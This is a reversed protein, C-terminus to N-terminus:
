HQRKKTGRPKAVTKGKTRKSSAVPGEIIEIDDDIPISKRKAGSHTTSTSFDLSDVDIVEGATSGSFRTLAPSQRISSRVSPPRAVSGRSRISSAPSPRRSNSRRDTGGQATNPFTPLPGVEDEQETRDPRLMHSLARTEMWDRQFVTHSALDDQFTRVMCETRSDTQGSPIVREGTVRAAFLELSISASNKVVIREDGDKDESKPEVPSAEGLYETWEWPRNQVPTMTTQGTADQSVYALNAVALNPPVFPLLTRIQRRYELPMDSPLTQMDIEPYHQFPNYVTAKPDVPVEDLVFCLTDVILPFIIENILNGSGFVFALRLLTRYLDESQEKVLATWSGPLILVFQLLRALFVTNQAIHITSIGDLPGASLTELASKLKDLVEPVLGDQMNSPTPTNEMPPLSQVSDRMSKVISTLLRLVEGAVPVLPAGDNVDSCRPDKLLTTIRRLGASLLKSAIPLSIDKMMEAVFDSQESTMDQLFVRATIQDLLENARKRTAERNLASSLQKMSFRNEMFTAALKWPSLAASSMLTYDMASEDSNGDNLVLHLAHILAEHVETPVSEDELVSEFALNVTELDRYVGQRFVNTNCVARRFGVYAQRVVTPVNVNEELLVLIPVHEVLSAFHPERYVDRRRTHLGRAEFFTSPPYEYACGTNLLLRTCLDCIAILPTELSSGHTPSDARAGARWSPYALGQLIAVTSLAGQVVLHLLVVTVVDWTEATFTSVEAAGSGLFWGLLHSDLGSPLHHEVHTLFAGYRLACIRRHEVDPYLVPIHRLSAITNDWVKWAWDTATRYKYWLSNALMSPADVRTDEALMLIEPLASPVNIPEAHVPQLALAYAGRDALIQERVSSDLYRVNDFEILLNLLNPNQVGQSKWYQHASLLSATIMGMSNMCAWVETHQRLTDIVITILDPSNGHELAFLTLDLISGYCKCHAMLVTSLCYVKTIRNVGENLTIASKSLIKKKLLPLLWERVVRVQEFRPASYLLSCSTELDDMFAQIPLPEGSFLEPLLARIEKRIKRENTSEPIERARVGYLTVKRQMTLASSSSHLPIWRLFNRHRSGNPEAFSLGPEGRAILRQIYVPYSFLGHKVLQGFLLAVSSINGEEAAADSADLWDFLHDQIFEDPSARDRRIAREGARDRWCRLLSAAAYPRHDGYQLPTVSWTLLIDLKQAFTPSEDSATDFFLVSELDTNGSLSNLLKIDHIASSLPGPPRTPLDKFLMAENRRKVHAFTDAIIRRLAPVNQEASLVLTGDEAYEAVIDGLLASHQLWTKPNIFADPLGLLVRMLLSKLITELNVLLERGPTAIIEAIRNLCAEVLPRSLARIALMGDLYEDTLRVVFGLQALNSTHMQQVLWALFTRNDVLGESYFDRLLQLSYSFRFIWRERSEPDSLVGKFTQKINLGFGPRPAMPLAIDTLQKKLYSTMVNAWDVSYQTPNYLSPKNRLGATENGGFVRLFWVARPIAVNNTQLLDLLDHGKAGHPVSKGLKHLPVDPNALDAFWAQRKADNLTVRSPLRFSSPPVPPSTEVRRAFIQNMLDELDELANETTLREQVTERASLTEASVQAAIVLGNKVNAETLVEEVQDARPPQFGAYGLDSTSHVKPLWEPPHSQYIPPPKEDGRGM